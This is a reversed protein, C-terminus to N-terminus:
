TITVFYFFFVSLTSLDFLFKFSNISDLSAHGLLFSQRNCYDLFCVPEHVQFVFSFFVIFLCGQYNRLRLSRFCSPARGGAMGSGRGCGATIRSRCLRRRLRLWDIQLVLTFKCRVWFSKVCNIKSRNSGILPFFYHLKGGLFLITSAVWEKFSYPFYVLWRELDELYYKSITDHKHLNISVNWVKKWSYLIQHECLFM